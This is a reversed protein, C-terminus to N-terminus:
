ARWGRHAAGDLPSSFRCWKARGFRRPRWRHVEGKAPLWVWCLGQSMMLQRLAESGIRLSHKNALYESAARIGPLSGAVFDADGKARRRLDESEGRLEAEVVARDEGVGTGGAEDRHVPTEM